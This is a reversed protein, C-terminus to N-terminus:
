GHSDGLKELHRLVVAYNAFVEIKGFHEKGDSTEIIGSGNSSITFCKVDGVLKGDLKLIILEIPIAVDIPEHM